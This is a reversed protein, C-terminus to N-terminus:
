PHCSIFANLSMMLDLWIWFTWTLEHWNRKFNNWFLKKKTRQQRQGWYLSWRLQHICKLVDKFKVLNSLTLLNSIVVVNLLLELINNYESYVKWIFESIICKRFLKYKWWASSPSPLLFYVFVLPADKNLKENEEVTGIFLLFNDPTTM